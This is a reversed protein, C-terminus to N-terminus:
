SVRSAIFKATMVLAEKYKSKKLGNLASIAKNVYKKAHRAAYEISGCARLKELLTGNSKPAKQQTIIRKILKTDSSPATKLLHILPLTFKDRDLDNGTKKGTKAEKGVLDLIDDTIQFAIGVNLGYDALKKQQQRDAGALMAGARCAASFMEASKDTIIELYKSESLLWNGRQATQSMEGECMRATTDAIVEAVGDDLQVCMRFVKSLLFDGLLVASENGKLHNLTPLGRRSKGEDIVDDHLLTANHIMEMIAAALIHKDTICGISHGSLLVLGPRLMKCKSFIIHSVLGRVTQSCDQLQKEVLAKVRALEEAIADFACFPCKAAIRKSAAKIQSSSEIM